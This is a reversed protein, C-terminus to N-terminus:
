LAVKKAGKSTKIIYMGKAPVNIRVGEGNAKVNQIMAGSLTYVSINGKANEIVINGNEVKIDSDANDAIVGDIGSVDDEVFFFDKWQDAAAYQSKTGEPVHLKCTWKNIDDLANAGCTPPVKTHSELSTLATCDSFAEQGITKMGKGFKFNELSSCGSFAWNGISEVGDGMSISKLATCGYFENESIETEKDTITVTELTANRYFPSYGAKSTTGYTINGGIYVTKLQCDAFLPNSGNSGLSLETERDTINVEAINTCGKFVNNGVSTVNAPITIKSLASCGSFTSEDIKKLGSGIYVSDLSSCGSFASAGLSTLSDPLIINQLMSCAMFGSAGITKSGKSLTANRLNTCEYFAKDGISSVDIDFFASYRKASGKFAEADVSKAKLTLKKLATCGSFASVGISDADIDFTAANMTACKKFANVYITDAKLTLTELANCNSFASEGIIKANVSISKVSDCSYFAYKPIDGESNIEISKINDNNDCLYPQIINVKMDIGLYSVANGIKVNTATTDYVCDIADCTRESPSVPVYKVGDAEFMSSLFPYVTVSSLSDYQENAVYHQKSRVSSYGSPPTNPLWIVKKSEVGSFAYKSISTVSNPITISTLSECGCFTSMSISTVGNPITISTLSKCGYFASEGISTVSNPITISTLSNCGRFASKGISTVSNPITISTLSNCGYFASEGISTVSNPITISTLSNCGCFASEGISTVRYTTGGYTVSDPIIVKGSYKKKYNYHFEGYRSNYYVDNYTVSVSGKGIKDYCIGNVKFDYEIYLDASANASIMLMLSILVGKILKITRM